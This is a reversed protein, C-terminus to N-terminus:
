PRSCVGYSDSDHRPNPVWDWSQEVSVSRQIGVRGHNERSVAGRIETTPRGDLNINDSMEIYSQDYLRSLSDNDCPPSAHQELDPQGKSRTHSPSGSTGSTAHGYRSFLRSRLSTFYGTQLVHLKSFATMAPMSSCIISITTEM